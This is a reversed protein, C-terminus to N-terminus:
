IPVDMTHVCYFWSHKQQMERVRIIHKIREELTEAHGFVMTATTPYGLSHAAHMVEAM